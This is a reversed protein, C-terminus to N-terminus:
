TSSNGFRWALLSEALLLGFVIYLLWRHFGTQRSVTATAADDLNSRESTVLEPPLEAPDIRALESERTDVNVAFHKDSFAEGQSLTYIGSILTDAYSWHTGGSADIQAAQQRGAPSRVALARAAASPPIEGGITQGVLAGRDAGQRTVAWSVLEQVIPVFSPWAAMTSWPTKTTPDAISSLSGDTAVIISRGRGVTGEVIAPDGNEFALAVKASSNPQVKLRIYKYVPTTTLGAQESGKFASVLPHRYDLPDFHYVGLEAIDGLEVPLVAPGDDRALERNYREALVRDGLFFVLGGGQKLYGELMRAESTTFQALNCLFVCDYRALEREPLLSESIREVKIPSGTTSRQEPSLALAVYDGAGTFQGSGPKGDVVLVDLSEKVPLALYRHNDVDLLDPALRVELSYDGPGDWRHQFSATTQGGAPLDIKTQGVRRDGAFLEIIKGSHRQRGFNKVEVEITAPQAALVFPQQVTVSTIAINESGEQGLDIATLSAQQALREIRQRYTANGDAEEPAWTTRGLDTLFYVEKRPLEDAEPSALLQEVKGLTALLDGGGHTIRLNEIEDQVSRRDMAPTGIVTQPPEALLILAFADGQRSEDVIQQALQKARDFRSKDTPKYAMSYSGDIVLVKFARQTGVFSLGASELFPQAVATVILLIILTRIILLLLQEIRLRRSNKRLAALLYEMAAWSVERYKRKNWLHILIPAAAAALWGLMWLNAFGFALLPLLLSNLEPV